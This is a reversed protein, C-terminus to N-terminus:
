RVQTTLYAFRSPLPPWWFVDIRKKQIFERLDSPEEISVCRRTPSDPPMPSLRFVRENEDWWGYLKRRIM